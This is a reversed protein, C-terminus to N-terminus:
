SVGLRHFLKMCRSSSYGDVIRDIKEFIARDPIEARDFALVDGCQINPDLPM